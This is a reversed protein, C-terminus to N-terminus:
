EFVTAFDATPMAAPKVGLRWFIWGGLAGFPAFVLGYILINDVNNRWLTWSGFLFGGRVAEWAYGGVLVATPLLFATSVGLLICEARGVIGRLRSVTNLYLLGFLLSWVAAALAIGAGVMLAFIGLVAVVPLSVLAIPGLPAVVLAFSLRLIGLDRRRRQSPLLTARDAAVAATL